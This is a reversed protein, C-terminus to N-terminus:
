GPKSVTQVLVPLRFTLLPLIYLAVSSDHESSLLNMKEGKIDM